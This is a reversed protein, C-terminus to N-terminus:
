TLWAVWVRSGATRVFISNDDLEAVDSVGSPFTAAHVQQMTTWTASGAVRQDSAGSGCGWLQGDSTVVLLDFCSKGAMLRSVAKGGVSIASPTHQDGVAGQGLFAVGDGCTYVTGGGTLFASARAANTSVMQTVGSVALVAGPTAPHTFDGQGCQGESNRGWSQVTGDDLLALVHGGDTWAKVVNGAVAIETHDLVNGGTSGTGAAGDTNDGAFWLSGDSKVAVLCSRGVGADIWVVDSLHSLQVPTAHYTGSAEGNGINGNQNLGVAWVSGDAKRWFLTRFGAAVQVAGACDAYALATPTAVTTSPDFQNGVANGGVPGISGWVYIADAATSLGAGWGSAPSLNGAGVGAPLTNTQPSSYGGTVGLGAEHNVSFGWSRWGAM